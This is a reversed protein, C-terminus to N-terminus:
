GLNEVERSDQCGGLISAEFKIFRVKEGTLVHKGLKVKGFTGEGVSTVLNLNLCLIISVYNITVLMQSPKTKLLIQHDNLISRNHRDTQLCMTMPEQNILSTHSIM